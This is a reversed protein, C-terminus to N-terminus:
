YGLTGCGNVSSVITVGSETRTLSLQWLESVNAELGVVAGHDDGLYPNVASASAFIATNDGIRKYVNYSNQYTNGGDTPNFWVSYGEYSEFLSNTFGSTDADIRDGGSNFLGFRIGQRVAPTSSLTVNMSLTVTGGLSLSYADFYGIINATSGASTYTMRETETSVTLTGGGSTGALYWTASSADNLLAESRVALPTFLTFALAALIYRHPLIKM